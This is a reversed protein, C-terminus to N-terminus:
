ATGGYAAGEGELAHHFERVGRVGDGFDGTAGSMWRPRMAWPEAFTEAAHEGRQGDRRTVAIWPRRACPLLPRVRVPILAETSNM